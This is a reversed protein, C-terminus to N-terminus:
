ILHSGRFNDSTTNSGKTYTIYIYNFINLGAAAAAVVVVVVVLCLIASNVRSVQSKTTMEKLAANASSKQRKKKCVCFIFTNGPTNKTQLAIILTWCECYINFRWENM